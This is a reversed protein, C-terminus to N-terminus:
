FRNYNIIKKMEQANYFYMGKRCIITDTSSILKMVLMNRITDDIFKIHYKKDFFKNKSNIVLIMHAEDFNWDGYKAFAELSSCYTPLTSPVLCTNDPKFELINLTFCPIINRKDFIVKDVSWWGTILKKPVSECGELIFSTATILPVLLINKRM